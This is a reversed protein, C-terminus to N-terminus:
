IGFIPGARSRSKTNRVNFDGFSKCFLSAKVNYVFSQLPLPHPMVGTHEIGENGGYVEHIAGWGSWQKIVRFRSLLFIWIDLYYLNHIISKHRSSTSLLLVVGM